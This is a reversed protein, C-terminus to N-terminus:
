IYFLPRPPCKLNELKTLPWLIHADYFMNVIHFMQLSGITRRCIRRKYKLMDLVVVM